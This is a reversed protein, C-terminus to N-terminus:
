ASADRELALNYLAVVLAGFLWALVMTQVTGMVVEAPAIDWRIVASVDFGHLLSNFYAIIVERPLTAMLTVCGLYVLASAAGLAFGFRLPDLRSM